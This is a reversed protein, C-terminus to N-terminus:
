FGVSADGTTINTMDHVSMRHFQKQSHDLLEQFFNSYSKGGVVLTRIRPGFRCLSRLVFGYSSATLQHANRAM